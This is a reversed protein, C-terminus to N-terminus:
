SNSHWWRGHDDVIKGIIYSSYRSLWDRRRLAVVSAFLLVGSVSSNIFWYFLLFLASLILLISCIKDKIVSVCIAGDSEELTCTRAPHEPTGRHDICAAFSIVHMDSVILYPISHYSESKSMLNGYIRMFLPDVKWSWVHFQWLNEYFFSWSVLILFVGTIRLSALWRKMMILDPTGYWLVMALCGCCWPQIHSRFFPPGM